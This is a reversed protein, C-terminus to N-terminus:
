VPIIQYLNTYNKRDRQHIKKYDIPFSYAIPFCNKRYTKGTKTSHKEPIIHWHM